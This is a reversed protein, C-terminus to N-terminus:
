QLSFYRVTTFVEVEGTLIPSTYVHKSADEVSARRGNVRWISSGEEFGYFPFSLSGVCTVENTRKIGTLLVM